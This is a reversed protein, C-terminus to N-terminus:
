GPRSQRDGPLQGPDRRRIRRQRRRARPRRLLRDPLQSQLRRLQGDDGAGCRRRPRPVRLRRRDQRVRHVITRDGHLLRDRRGCARPDACGHLHESCGCHSDQAPERRRDHLHQGRRAQGGQVEPADAGYGWCPLEVFHDGRGLASCVVRESLDVAVRDRRRMVCQRRSLDHRDARRSGGLVPRRAWDIRVCAGVPASAYRTGTRGHRGESIAQRSCTGLFRCRRRRLSVRLEAQSFVLEHTERISRRHYPDSPGSGSGGGRAFMSTAGGDIRRLRFASLVTRLRVGEPSRHSGLPFRDYGRDRLGGLRPRPPRKTGDDCLRRHQAQRPISRPRHRLLVHLNHASAEVRKLLAVQALHEIQHGVIQDGISGVRIARGVVALLAKELRRSVPGFVEALPRHDGLLEDVSPIADQHANALHRASFGLPM